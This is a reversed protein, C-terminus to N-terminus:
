FVPLILVVCIVVVLKLMIQRGVLMSATFRFPNKPKQKNTSIYIIKILLSSPVSM